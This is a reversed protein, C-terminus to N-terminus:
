DALYPRLDAALRGDRARRYWWLSHVLATQAADPSQEVLGRRDSVSCVYEGRICGLFPSRGRQISLSSDRLRTPVWNSNCSASEDAPQSTVWAGIERSM